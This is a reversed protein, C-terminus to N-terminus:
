SLKQLKDETRIIETVALAAQSLQYLLDEASKKADQINQLILDKDHVKKGSLAMTYDSFLRFFKGYESTERLKNEVEYLAGQIKQRFEARQGEVKDLHLQQGKETKM